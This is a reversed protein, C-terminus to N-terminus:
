KVRSQRKAQAHAINAMLEPLKEELEKVFICPSRGVEHVVVGYMQLLRHMRARGIGIAHALAAATYMAKDPLPKIVRPRRAVPKYTRM